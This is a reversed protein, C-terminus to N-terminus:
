CGPGPDNPWWPNTYTSSLAYLRDTDPVRM